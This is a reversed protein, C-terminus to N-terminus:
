FTRSFGSAFNITEILLALYIGTQVLFLRM